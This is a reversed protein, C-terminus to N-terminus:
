MQRFRAFCAGLDPVTPPSSVVPPRSSISPHRTKAHHGCVTIGLRLAARLRAARAPTAGPKEALAGMDVSLRLCSPAALELFCIAKRVRGSMQQLPLRGDFVGVAADVCKFM